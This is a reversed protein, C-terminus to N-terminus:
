IIILIYYFCISTAPDYDDKAGSIYYASTNSDYSVISARTTALQVLEDYLPKSTEVDTNLVLEDYGNGSITQGIIGGLGLLNFTLNEEGKNQWKKTPM